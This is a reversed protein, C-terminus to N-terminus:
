YEFGATEMLKIFSIRVAQDPIPHDHISVLNDFHFIQGRGRGKTLSSMGSESSGLSFSEDKSYKEYRSQLVADCIRAGLTFALNM